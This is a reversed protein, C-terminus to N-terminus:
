PATFDLPSLRPVRPIAPIGLYSSFLDASTPPKPTKLSGFTDCDGVETRWSGVLHVKNEPNSAVKPYWDGVLKVYEEVKDPKVDHMVISHVYKGRALVQSFSREIEQDMQRGEDTGYILSSLKGSGRKPSNSEVESQRAEGTHESVSHSSKSNHTDYNSAPWADPVATSPFNSRSSDDYPFSAQLQSEAQEKKKKAIELGERFEQQRSNFLSAADPTVDGLHPARRCITASTFTRVFASAQSSPVILKRALM